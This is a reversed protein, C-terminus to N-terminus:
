LFTDVKSDGFGKSISNLSISKSSMRV